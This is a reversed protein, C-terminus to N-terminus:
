TVHPFGVAQGLEDLDEATTRAFLSELLISFFDALPTRADSLSEVYSRTLAALLLEPRTPSVSYAEGKFCQASVSERGDESTVSM